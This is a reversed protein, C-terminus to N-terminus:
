DPACKRFRLAIYAIFFAALAVVLVVLGITDTDLEGMFTGRM